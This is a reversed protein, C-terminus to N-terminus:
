GSPRVGRRGLGLEKGRREDSVDPSEEICRKVSVEDVCVPLMGGATGVGEIFGEAPFAPAPWCEDVAWRPAHTCWVVVM